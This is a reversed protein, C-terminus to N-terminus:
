WAAVIEGVHRSDTGCCGGLVQIHPLLERLAANDRGLAVPDGERFLLVTEIGGDTMAIESAM